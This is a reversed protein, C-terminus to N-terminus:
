RWSALPVFIRAIIVPGGIYLMIPIGALATQMLVAQAVESAPKNQLRLLADAYQRSHRM